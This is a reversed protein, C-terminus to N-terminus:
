FGGKKMINRWKVRLDSPLRTRHFVDRGYELIQVWPIPSDDKPIFKAMAEKLTTEEEETWCLKSRRGTPAVPNSYRKQPAYNRKRSPSSLHQDQQATTKRSNSSAVTEKERLGSKSHRMKCWPPSSRKGSDNSSTAEIEDSDNSQHSKAPGDEKEAEVEQNAPPDCRKQSSSRTGHSSNGNVVKKNEGQQQREADGLKNNKITVNNPNEVPSAKGTVMEEPYGNGTAYVKQKKRQQDPEEDRHALNIAKHQHTNKRKSSDCVDSQGEGNPARPLVGTLQEDRQRVAQTTGLFTALNKRAECYTKKAKEYAETAKRYFCVPCYFLDAEQFTVSSGFCRDHAALLCGSCKLLEGAKGCKICLDQQSFGELSDSIDQDMPWSPMKNAMSLLSTAAIGHLSDYPSSVRPMGASTDGLNAKDSTNTTSTGNVGQASNPASSSCGNKQVDTRKGTNQECSYNAESIRDHLILNCNQSSPAAQVNLGVHFKKNESISADDHLAQNVKDVGRNETDSKDGNQEELLTAHETDNGPLHNIESQGGQTAEKCRVSAQLTLEVHVHDKEAPQISASVDDLIQNVKEGSEHQLANLDTRSSHPPSIMTSDEPAVFEPLHGPESANTPLADSSRDFSPAVSAHTGLGEHSPKKLSQDSSGDDHLREGDIYHSPSNPSQERPSEPPVMAAHVETDKKSLPETICGQLTADASAHLPGHLVDEDATPSMEPSKAGLDVARADHEQPHDDSKSDSTCPQHLVFTQTIPDEGLNRSETEDVLNESTLQQLEGNDTPSRPKEVNVHDHSSGLSQDNDHQNTGNQELRSPSVMSTIEPDVEKLLELLTEPLTSKKMCIVNKIDQSFPPLMDKELTGSSGVEGILKLLFDECSRAAEVRLVGATAAAGTGAGAVSAAEQLCRFAVRERTAEPAGMLCEPSAGVLAKLVSFDLTEDGALADVVWHAAVRTATASAFAFLPPPM